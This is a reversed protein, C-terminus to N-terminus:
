EPVEQTVDFRAFARSVALVVPVCTIALAQFIVVGTRLPTPEIIRFAFITVFYCTFLVAFITLLKCVMILTLRGMFSSEGPDKTRPRHPVLLFILNDIASTLIAFPPVVSLLVLLSSSSLGGTVSTIVAAGVWMWFCLLMATPVLQGVAVALPSIPLARISAMRDLDRRFDAGDVMLPLIITLAILFAFALHAPQAGPDLARVIYVPAIALLGLGGRLALSPTRAIEQIQRWALPGAGSLRPLRAIPIRLNRARGSAAHRRGARASRGEGGRGSTARSLADIGSGDLRVVACAILCLLTAAAVSWGLVLAADDALFIEVVPRTIWGAARVTPADAVRSLAVLTGRSWDGAISVSVFAPGLILAALAPILVISLRPHGRERLLAMAPGVLQSMLQNLALMFFIALFAGLLTGAFRAMFVVGWAASMVAIMLRSLINYVLLEPRPIPAPFLWQEEAPGFYLRQARTGLLAFVLLAPPGWRRADEASYSRPADPALLIQSALLGGVLVLVALLLAKGSPGEFRRRLKRIGGHIRREILYRLAPSM